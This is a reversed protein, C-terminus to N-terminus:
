KHGKWGFVKDEKISNASKAGGANLKEETEIGGFHDMEGGQLGIQAPFNAEGIAQIRFLKVGEDVSARVV